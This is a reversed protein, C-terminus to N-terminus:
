NFTDPVPPQAGQKLSLGAEFAASRGGGPFQGVLSPSPQGLILARLDEACFQGNGILQLQELTIGKHRLIDELRHLAQSRSSSDGQGVFDRLFASIRTKQQSTLETTTKVYSMLAGLHGQRTGAPPQLPISRGKAAHQWAALAAEGDPNIALVTQASGQAAPTNLTELLAPADPPVAESRAAPEAAPQHAAGILAPLLPPTQPLSRTQSPISPM